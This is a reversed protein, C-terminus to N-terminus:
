AALDPRLSRPGRAAPAVPARVDHSRPVPFYHRSARRAGAVGRARLPGRAGLIREPQAGRHHGYTYPASHYMPGTIVTRMEPWAGFVRFSDAYYDAATAADGTGVLRRVGKPHGTTGSTYIVSSSLELIADPLTTLADRWSSWELVGSPLMTATPSINYAAAISAPTTVGIVTVSSPVVGHMARLLDAHAVLVKAKSDNLVYGVEEALGHWNIPVCAAGVFSAAFVTEFLEHDNRLLMAVTDGPGVGLSRLGAAAKLARGKLDDLSVFTDGRLVGSKLVSTSTSPDVQDVTDM